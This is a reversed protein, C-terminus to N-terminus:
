RPSAIMIAVRAAMTSWTKLSIDASRRFVHAFRSSLIVRGVVGALAVSSRSHALIFEQVNQSPSIEQAIMVVEKTTPVTKSVETPNRIKPNPAAAMVNRSMQMPNITPRVTTVCTNSSKCLQDVINHKIHFSWAADVQEGKVAPPERPKDDSM